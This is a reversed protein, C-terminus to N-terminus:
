RDTCRKRGFWSAGLLGLGLLAMSGPEPTSTPTQPTGLIAAVNGTTYIGSASPIGIDSAFYYGGSNAVFDNDSLGTISSITFTLPGSFHPVSAGTGCVSSDSCTVFSSFAGFPSSTDNVGTSFGPTLSGPVYTFSKDVNFALSNGAGTVTFIEGSSLTETVQITNADIDKLTVTAFLGSGCCSGGQDLVFIMNARATSALFMVASCMLFAHRKFM